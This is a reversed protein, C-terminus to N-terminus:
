IDENDLFQTFLRGSPEWVKKILEENTARCRAITRAPIEICDHLHLRFLHKADMSSSAYGLICNKYLWRSIPISSIAWITLIVPTLDKEFWLMMKDFNLSKPYKEIRQLAAIKLFTTICNFLSESQSPVNITRVCLNYIHTYYAMKYYRIYRMNPNELYQILYPWLQGLSGEGNDIPPYVIISTTM